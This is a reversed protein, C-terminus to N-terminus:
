TCMARVSVGGTEEDVDTVRKAEDVHVKKYFNTALTDVTLTGISSVMAIFGSFPFKRWPSKNLCPSTLTRFADPLIHMFGTALIVGTAFAKIMFFVDNEPRLRRVNEGRAPPQRRRGLWWSRLSRLSNSSSLMTLTTTRTRTTRKKM